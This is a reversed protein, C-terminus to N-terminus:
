LLKKIITEQNVFIFAGYYYVCGILYFVHTVERYCTCSVVSMVHCYSMSVCTKDLVDKNVLLSIVQSAYATIKDKPNWYSNKRSGICFIVVSLRFESICLFVFSRVNLGYRFIESLKIVIDIKISHIAQIVLRGM